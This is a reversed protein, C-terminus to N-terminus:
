PYAQEDTSSYRYDYNGSWKKPTAPVYNRKLRKRDIEDTGGWIGLENNELAWELCEVKYKCMGCARKALNMTERYSPLEKDPFFIDPDTQTCIPEGKGHFNPYDRYSATM